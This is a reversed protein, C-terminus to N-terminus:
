KKPKKTGFRIYSRTTLLGLTITVLYLVTALVWVAVDLLPSIDQRDLLFSVSFVGVTVWLIAAEIKGYRTTHVNIGRLKKAIVVTSNALQLLLLGALLIIPMISELAFVIFVALFALKDAVSDLAEGLPGKTKTREAVAGDVFDLLRGTAIMVFGVVYIRDLLLVSGALVLSLAFLTIMNGPTAMGRSAAALKQWSNRESEAVYEWDPKAKIRHMHM